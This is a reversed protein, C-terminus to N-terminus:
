ENGDEKEKHREVIKKRNEKLQDLEKQFLRRFQATNQKLPFITKATTARNEKSEEALIEDILQKDTIEKLLEVNDGVGVLYLRSGIKVIQISKNQGLSLGGLNEMSKVKQFLKNRSQLFKIVLYMLGIVLSLVIALKIINLVLSDSLSENEPNDRNEATPVLEEECDAGDELCDMVNKPVAHVESAFFLLLLIVFIWTKNPLIRM